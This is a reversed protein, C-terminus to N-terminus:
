IRALEAFGRVFDSSDLILRDGTQVWAHAEFPYRTVGIRHEAPLGVSRLFRYLALSRPLCDRPASRMMFFNEATLFAREARALLAATDAGAAPAALRAYRGYTHEFGRNALLGVTCLLSWWARLVLAGTRAQATRPPPPSPAGVPERQLFGRELCTRSFAELDAALVPEPAHFARELAPVRESPALRLLARWMATAVRDFIVYDGSRLDLLVVLGDVIRFRVGSTPFYADMPRDKELLQGM